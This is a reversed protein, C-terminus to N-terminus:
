FKNNNCFKKLGEKAILYAIRVAMYPAFEPLIITALALVLDVIKEDKEMWGIVDPNSCIKKQITEKKMNFWNKGIETYRKAPEMIDSVGAYVVVYDPDRENMGDIEFGIEKFVTEIGEVSSLYNEVSDRNVETIVNNSLM